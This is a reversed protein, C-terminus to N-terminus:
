GVEVERFINLISCEENTIIDAFGDKDWTGRFPLSVDGNHPYSVNSKEYGKSYGIKFNGSNHVRLGLKNIIVERGQSSGKQTGVNPRLLSIKSEVELGILVKEGDPIEADLTATGSNITIPYYKGNYYAKADGSIHTIGDVVGSTKIKEVSAELKGPTFIPRVREISRTGSRNILLFVDDRTASPIISISEIMGTSVIRCWATINYTMEFTCAAITGDDLLCWIMGRPTNQWDIKSIGPELIHPATFTLEPSQYGNEQSYIYQRLGRKNGMSYIVANEILIAGVEGGGNRSSIEAIINIATVGPPIIWESSTTGIVLDKRPVVWLIQDNNDSALEAEIASSAIVVDRTNTITEYEPNSTVWVMANYGVSTADETAAKSITVSTPTISIVKTGDPIGPGYIYHDTTLNSTLDTSVSITTQGKVVSGVFAVTKPDKIQNVTNTITEYYVFRKYKYPCSAWIGAPKNYSSFFWARGQYFVSLAPYNGPGDFPKRGPTYELDSTYDILANNTDVLFTDNGMYELLKPPHDRTTIIIWSGNQAFRLNKLDTESYPTNISLGLKTTGYKWIELKLDTFVLLYSLTPSIIFDQLLAKGSISGIYDTGQYTTVGGERIPIFNEVTKAGGAYIQSDFRGYFTPGIEGHALTTIIERQKM